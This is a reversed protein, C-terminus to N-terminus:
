LRTLTVYSFSLGDQTAHEERAVERWADRDFAFRADGEFPHHVETLEIRQAKALAARYIEAGGIVMVEAAQAAKALADDLSVAAIAGEAKWGPQRTVVINAREPLPKKPLSDWTKRGMVVPKGITLQRFRKLDDGIRWPIAGNRGIVGNDAMALILTIM